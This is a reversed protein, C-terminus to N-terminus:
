PCLRRGRSFGLWYLARGEASSASSAAVRDFERLEGDAGDPERRLGLHFHVFMLGEGAGGVCGNECWRLVRVTPRCGLRLM